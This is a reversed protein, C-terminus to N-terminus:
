LDGKTLLLLLLLLLLLINLDQASTSRADLGHPQRSPETASMTTM